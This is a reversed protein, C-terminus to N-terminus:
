TRYRGSSSAAGRCLRMASVQLFIWSLIRISGQFPPPKRPWLYSRPSLFRTCTIETSPQLLLGWLRLTPSPTAQWHM